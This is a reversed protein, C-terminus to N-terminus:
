SDRRTTKAAARTEADKALRDYTTAVELMLRRADLDDLNAANARAEAARERWHRADHRISSDAM